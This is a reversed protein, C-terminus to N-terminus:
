GWVRVMAVAFLGLGSWQGGGGFGARRCGRREVRGRFHFGWGTGKSSVGGVKRGM